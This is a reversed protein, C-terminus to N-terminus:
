ILLYFFYKNTQFCVTIGQWSIFTFAHGLVISSQCIAASAFFQEDFPQELYSNYWQTGLSVPCSSSTQM